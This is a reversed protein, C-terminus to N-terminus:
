VMDVLYLQGTYLYMIFMSESSWWQTQPTVIFLMLMAALFYRNRWLINM